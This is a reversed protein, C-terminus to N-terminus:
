ELWAVLGGAEAAPRPRLPQPTRRFFRYVLVVLGLMLCIAVLGGTSGILPDAGILHKPGTFIDAVANLSSHLVACVAVSGKSWVYFWTFLFSLAVGAAVMIAIGQWAQAGPYNLGLLIMPLHWFGWIVGVIVSASIEGLKLVRPLLYGRWGYEEGFALPLGILGNVVAVVPWALLLPTPETWRFVGLGAIADIGIVAGVLLSPAVLAALYDIPPRLLGITGKPSRREIVTRLVLAALLPGIMGLVLRGLAPDATIDPLPQTLSFHVLKPAAKPAWWAWSFGYALLTFLAVELWLRRRGGGNAPVARGGLSVMSFAHM